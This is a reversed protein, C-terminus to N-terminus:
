AQASRWVLPLRDIIDGAMLAMEGLEEAPAVENFVKNNIETQKATAQESQVSTVKYDLNELYQDIIVDPINYENKIQERTEKSLEKGNNIYEETYRNFNDKDKEPMEVDKFYDTKEGKSFKALGNFVIGYDSDM